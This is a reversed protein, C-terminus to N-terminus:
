SADPRESGISRLLDIVSKRVKADDIRVFARNLELGERSSLFEFLFTDADSEAFGPAVVHDGVPVGEFFFGVPVDLIQSLNFLRSAGIRNIGKEYKQIQQFTLGMKGALKEQSMGVLM